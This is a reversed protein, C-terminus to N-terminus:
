VCVSVLGGGLHRQAVALQNWRTLFRAGHTYSESYVTGGGTRNQIFEEEKERGKGHGMQDSNTGPLDQFPPPLPSPEEPPQVADAGRSLPNLIILRGKIDTDM